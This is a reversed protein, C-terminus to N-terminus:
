GPLKGYARQQACAAQALAENALAENSQGLAEAGPRVADDARSYCFGLGATRVVRDGQEFRLGPLAIKAGSEAERLFEGLRRVRAAPVGAANLRREMEAASRTAFAERFRARLYEVDRAVVFGGAANFAELDLARSDECLHELGLV